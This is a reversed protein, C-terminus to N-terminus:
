QATATLTAQASAKFELNGSAALYAKLSAAADATQGAYFQAMGKAYLLAADAKKGYADAYAKSADLFKGAAMAKDGVAAQAKVSADVKASISVKTALEARGGLALLLQKSEKAYQSAGSALYGTLAARAEVANGAQASAQGQAYLAVSAQSKAYAEAYSKAADEFKGAAYATDGAKAEAKASASIGAGISIKAATFVGGGVEAVAKTAGKVAGLAGGVTSKVGIEADAQAKYKLTGSASEYMKFTAVADDKHGMAKHCEAMAYLFASDRTKAFGNGYAALAAEFDGKAYAADGATADAQGKVNVDAKISVSVTASAGAGGALAPSSVALALVFSYRTLRM